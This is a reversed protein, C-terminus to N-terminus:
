CKISDLWTCRYILRRIFLHQIISGQVKGVLGGSESHFLVVVDLLLNGKLTKGKAFLSPKRSKQISLRKEVM